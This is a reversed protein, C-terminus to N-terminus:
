KSFYRLELPDKIGRVVKAQAETPMTRNVQHLKILSARSVTRLPADEEIERDTHTNGWSM